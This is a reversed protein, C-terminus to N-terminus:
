DGPSISRRRGMRATWPLRPRQQELCRAFHSVGWAVLSQKLISPIVGPRHRLLTNVKPAEEIPCRVSRIGFDRALRIVVNSVRVRVTPTMM